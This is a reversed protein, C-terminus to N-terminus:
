QDRIFTLLGVGILAALWFIMTSTDVIREGPNAWFLFSVIFTLLTSVSLADSTNYFKFTIFFIVWLGGLLSNIFYGGSLANAATFSQIINTANTVNTVDYTM